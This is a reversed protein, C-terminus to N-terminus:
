LLDVYSLLCPQISLGSLRYFSSSWFLQLIVTGNQFLFFKYVCVLGAIKCFAAYCDDSALIHLNPCTNIFLNHSLWVEM